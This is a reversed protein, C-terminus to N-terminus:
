QRTLLMIDGLRYRLYSSTLLDETPSVSIGPVWHSLPGDLKVLPEIKRRLLDLRFVIPNADPSHHVFYLARSGLHWARGIERGVLEPLPGELGTALDRRWLEGLVTFYLFKGDASVTADRGNQASVLTPEGGAPSLRWIQRAGTRMTSFYISQGDPSWSPMSDAAPHSTLRRLGAGDAGIVFIEAQNDVHRDFAIWRGDPSWNPSGILQENFQTLPTVSSCDRTALWLEDYGSRSSVFVLRQGDPSFRPSHDPRSSDLLCPVSNSSTLHPDLRRVEVTSNNLQQTYAILGGVPSVAIQHPQETLGEVRKPLRPQLQAQGAAVSLRWLRSNGDRNSVFLVEEGDPSWAYGSISRSDFTLQRESRTQPDVLFLESAVGSQWRLFLIQKGDPSFKPQTDFVSGQGPPLTVQRRETGDRSVLFIVTPRGTAESDSVAFYRGDPSWDLGGWVRTVEREGGGSTPTVILSLKEGIRASARLFAIERGDPSWVPQKDARDNSTLRVIAGKEVAQLYIDQNDLTEGESTFAIYRGDPSFVPDMEMGPLTTLPLVTLGNTSAEKGGQRLLFILITILIAVAVSIIRPPTTVLRATLSPLRSGRDAPHTAPVEASTAAGVAPLASFSPQCEAAQGEIEVEVSQYFLYGAAPVTLIFQPDKPNDGLARRLMYINQTLNSEELIQDPWVRAFIEEKRVVQGSNEVLLLLLEFRKGVIPLPLDRKFIQPPEEVLRFQGFRFVRAM